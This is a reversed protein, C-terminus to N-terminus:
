RSQILVGPLDKISTLIQDWNTGTALTALTPNLGGNAVDYDLGKLGLNFAYEGQMRMILNAKGTVLDSVITEEETEEIVAAGATLGLTFYDITGANDVLLSPSDTVIVPRNFTAPSGGYVVTNAVVDGNNAPAIQYDTLDFFPKSHMIFASVRSSRDGLKSLGKSIAGTNMTGNSAITHKLAAINGVGGVLAALASNLWDELTQDAAQEGAAIKWADMSIGAKKAHDMTADVPGLRRNLKVSTIDEMGMKIPTIDADSTNDRRQVIGSLTKWFAAYDYDGGKRISKLLITGASKGNFLDIVAAIRDNYGTQIFPDRYKTDSAKTNAM